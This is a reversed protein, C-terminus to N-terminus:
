QEYSYVMSSVKRGNRQEVVKSLTGNANYYYVAEWKNIPQPSSNGHVPLSNKRKWESSICQGSLNYVWKYRFTGAELSLERTKRKEKRTFIYAPVSPDHHHISDLLGDAHYYLSANQLKYKKGEHESRILQGKENFYRWTIDTDNLAQQPVNMIWTQKLKDRGAYETLCKLFTFGKADGSRLEIIRHSDDYLCTDALCFTTDKLRGRMCTITSMIKGNQDLFTTVSTFNTTTVPLTESVIIKRIGERKLVATTNMLTDGYSIGKVGMPLIM